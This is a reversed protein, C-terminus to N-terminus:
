DRPRLPAPQDTHIKGKRAQLAGPEPHTHIYTRSKMISDFVNKTGEVAPAIVAKYPDDPLELPVPSATHVM